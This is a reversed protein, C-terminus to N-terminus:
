YLFMCSFYFRITVHKQPIICECNQSANPVESYDNLDCCGVSCWQEGDWRPAAALEDHPATMCCLWSSFRGGGGGKRSEEGEQTPSWSPSAQQGAATNRALERWHNLCSWPVKHLKGPQFCYSTMGREGAGRGMKRCTAQADSHWQNKKGHTKSNLVSKSSNVMKYCFILSKNLFYFYWTLTFDPDCQYSDSNKCHNAKAWITGWCMWNNVM